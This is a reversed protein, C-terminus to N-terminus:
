LAQNGLQPFGTLTLFLRTLTVSAAFSLRPLRLYGEAGHRRVPKRLRTVWPNMMGGRGDKPGIAPRLGSAFRGRAGDRGRLLFSGRPGCVAGGGGGRPRGTHAGTPRGGAGPTGAQGCPPSVQM